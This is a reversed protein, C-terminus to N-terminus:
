VLIVSLHQSIHQLDNWAEEFICRNFSIPFWSPAALRDCSQCHSVNATYGCLIGKMRKLRCHCSVRPPHSFEERLFIQISISVIPRCTISVSLSPTEHLVLIVTWLPDACTGRVELHVWVDFFWLWCFFEVELKWDRPLNLLNHLWSLLAACEGKPFKKAVLLRM